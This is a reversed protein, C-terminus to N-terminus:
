QVPLFQNGDWRAPGRATQYITGPIADARTKPLPLARPGAAAPAVQDNSGLSTKLAADYDVPKGNMAAANVITKAGSVAASLRARAVTEDMGQRRLELLAAQYTLTNQLRQEAMQSARQAAAARDQESQRAIDNRDTGLEHTIDNRNAANQNRDTGLQLNIDNRTAANANRGAGIDSYTQNRQQQNGLVGQRYTNNYDAQTERLKQQERLQAQHEAWNLGAMGGEGINVLPFKSKGGMIGLGAMLLAGAPGSLRDYFTDHPGAAHQQMPQQQPVDTWEGESVTDPPPKRGLGAVADDPHSAGAQDVTGPPVDRPAQAGTFQREVSAWKHEWAGLFQGVTPNPGIKARMDGPINNRIEALTAGYGADRWQKTGNVLVTAADANPDARLLAPGGAEGQQHVIYTQWPAATGGVAANAVQREKAWQKVGDRAQGAPSTDGSLMNGSLRFLGVNSAGPHDQYSAGMGSEIQAATLLEVPDQGLTRATQAVLQATGSLPPPAMEASPAPETPRLGATQAAAAVPADVPVTASGLGARSLAVDQTPNPLVAPAEPPLDQTSRGALHPAAAGPSGLGSVPEPEIYDQAAFAAPDPAPADHVRRADTSARYEKAPEGLAKGIDPTKAVWDPLGLASAQRQIWDPQDEPVSGGDDRHLSFGAVPPTYGGRALGAQPQMQRRQLMTQIMQGQQSGPPYRLAMEHLQETPLSAYRQLLGSVMPNGSGMGAALTPSVSGGDDRHVMGGRAILRGINALPLGTIANEMGLAGPAQFGPPLNGSVDWGVANGRGALADGAAMISQGGAQSGAMAGLPGGFYAGALGGMIQGAPKMALADASHMPEVFGGLAFTGDQSSTTNDPPARLAKGMGAVGKMAQLYQLDQQLPDQRQQAAPARPISSQHQGSIQTNPIYSVSLDPAAPTPIDVAGGLDYHDHIAGGRAASTLASTALGFMGSGSSNLAASTMPIAGGAISAAGSSGLGSFMGSGGLANYLGVGTLGAGMLQSGVSPGPSSTSGTGGMQSGLGTALSELWSTTQFPYAQAAQYAQYQANLQQQALAQQASGVQLQANAGSMATSQAENGLAGLQAAGQSNLWAQAQNAGLQIGQEQMGQASQALQMQQQTNFEQLANQYGSNMLGAIVPAQALQQQNALTSQAVAERDGGYAGQSVANGRLGAAQTQNQNNFEAQTANVVQQTYPSEYQSVAGASFQQPATPALAQLGSNWLPQTSAQVLNTANQIYPQALGAATNINAFANQQEPTFGAITSGSYPTYPTGAVNNAQNFVDNYKAMVEPPPASNQTVTNTGSSGKGM